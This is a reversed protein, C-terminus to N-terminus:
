KQKKPSATKFGPAKAIVIAPTTNMCIAYIDVTRADPGNNMAYVQWGNLGSPKSDTIILDYAEPQSFGGGTVKHGTQCTVTGSGTPHPVGVYPAPVEFSGAKWEFSSKTIGAAGAPGAPGM